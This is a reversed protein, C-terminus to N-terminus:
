RSKRVDGIKIALWSLFSRDQSFFEGDRKREEKREKETHRERKDGERQTHTHTKREKTEEM